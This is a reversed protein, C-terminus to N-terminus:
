GLILESEPIKLLDQLYEKIAMLSFASVASIFIGLYSLVLFVTFIVNPIREKLIELRQSIESVGMQGVSAELIGHYALIWGLTAIILIAPLRTVIARGTRSVDLGIWRWFMYRALGHRIYFIYALALFCFLPTYTSLCKTHADYVPIVHLATIPIPLAAAVVSSVSMYGKFFNAFARIRRPEIKPTEEKKKKM